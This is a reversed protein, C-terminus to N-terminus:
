CSQRAGPLCPAAVEFTGNPPPSSLDDRVDPHKKEVSNIVFAVNTLLEQKPRMRTITRGTLKQESDGLSFHATRLKPTPMKLQATPEVSQEFRLNLSLFLLFPRGGVGIM